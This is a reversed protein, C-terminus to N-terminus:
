LERSCAPAYPHVFAQQPPSVHANFKNWQELNLAIKVANRPSRLAKGGVQFGHHVRIAGINAQGACIDTGDSNVMTKLYTSFREPGRPISYLDRQVQLLPVFEINMDTRRLLGEHMWIRWGARSFQSLSPLLM